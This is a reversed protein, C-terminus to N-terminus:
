ARRWPPPAAPALAAAELVQPHRRAGPRRRARRGRRPAQRARRRAGPPQGGPTKVRVALGGVKAPHADPAGSEDHEKREAEDGRREGGLRLRRRLNSPDTKQRSGRSFIDLALYSCKLLRQVFQSIHVPFANDDLIAIRVPPKFPQGIKGGVQNTEPY